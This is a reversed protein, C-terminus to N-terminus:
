PCGLGLLLQLFRLHHQYGPTKLFGHSMRWEQMRDGQTVNCMERLNLLRRMCYLKLQRLGLGLLFPLPYTPMM